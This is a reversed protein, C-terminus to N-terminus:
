QGEKLETNLLQRIDDSTFGLRKMNELFLQLQERALQERIEM